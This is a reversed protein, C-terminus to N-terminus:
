SRSPSVPDALRKRPTLGVTRDPRHTRDVDAVAPSRAIAVEYGFPEFLRRLAAQGGRCPRGAVTLGMPVGTGVVEPRGRCQGKLATGFVRSIAASLFSSAAYPRGSVYQAFLGAARGGRSGRRGCVLGIPDVLLAATSRVRPSGFAREFQRVGHPHQHLLYGLELAPRHTM